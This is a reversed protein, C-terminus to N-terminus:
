SHGQLKPNTMEMNHPVSALLLCLSNSRVEPPYLTDRVHKSVNKLEEVYLLMATEKEM